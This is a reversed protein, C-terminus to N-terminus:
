LTQQEEDKKSMLELYQLNSLPTYSICWFGPRSTHTRCYFMSPKAGKFKIEAHDQFSCGCICPRDTTM